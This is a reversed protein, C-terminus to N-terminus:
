YGEAEKGFVYDDGYFMMSLRQRLPIKDEEDKKVKSKLTKTPM